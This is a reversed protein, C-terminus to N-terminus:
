VTNKLCALSALQQVHPVTPTSGGTAGITQLEGQISHILLTLPQLLVTYMCSSPYLHFTAFDITDISLNMTFNLGEGYTYPYSGDSGTSLGFGELFAYNTLSDNPTLEIPNFVM